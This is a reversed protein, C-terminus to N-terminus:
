KIHSIGVYIQKSTMDISQTTLPFAAHLISMCILRPPILTSLM